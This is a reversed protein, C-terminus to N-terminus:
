LMCICELCNSVYISTISLHLCKDSHKSIIQDQLIDPYTLLRGGNAMYVTSHMKQRMQIKIIIIEMVVSM